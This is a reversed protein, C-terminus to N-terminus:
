ATGSVIESPSIGVSLQKLLDQKQGTTLGATLALFAKKYIELPVQGRSLSELVDSQIESTTFRTSCSLCERRRRITGDSKIRSDIVSSKLRGCKPCIMLLEEKRFLIFNM